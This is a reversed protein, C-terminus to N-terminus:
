PFITNLKHVELKIDKEWITHLKEDITGNCTESIETMADDISQHIEKYRVTKM